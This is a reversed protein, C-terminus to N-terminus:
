LPHDPNINLTFEFGVIRRDTLFDSKFSEPPVSKVFPISACAEMLKKISAQAEVQSFRAVRADPDVNRLLMRGKIDIKYVAAPAPPPAADPSGAAALGAARGHTPRTLIPVTLPIERDVSLSDIWVDHADPSTGGQELPGDGLAKQLQSFFTIWNFRSDYLTQYQSIQNATADAQDSADKIQKAISSLNDSRNRWAKTEALITSKQAYLRYLMPLPALALCIGALILFPQKRQFALRSRIIPPLLNVGMADPKALRAAEGTIESIQYYLQGLMGRNVRSGIGLVATPNFYDVSVKQMESLYEPLGALLSGRGTLLIRSPAARNSARRYAIISQTIQQSLRKMFDQAKAQLPAVAPDDAQFPTEGTYFNVKLEEAQLFPKGVGDAIMQTLSNGGLSVNRIFIGAPSVFTLNTSRAGINVVLTDELDNSHVLKYANYDLLSSPQLAIPEFGITSMLGCFRNAAEAKQAALLVESEIGDDAIVQSGWVAETLPFPINNQAEFAIIQTRKSPDVHPIKIPKILLQYGPLIFTAKGKFKSNARTLDRLGEALAPLWAEEKAVDYRLDRTDLDELTLKGNTYSFVAAAVHSAGCNIVLTKSSM